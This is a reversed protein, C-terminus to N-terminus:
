YYHPENPTKLIGDKNLRGSPRKRIAREIRSDLEIDYSSKRCCRPCHEIHEGFTKIIRERDDHTLYAMKPFNKAFEEDNLEFAASLYNVDYTEIWQGVVPDICQLENLEEAQAELRADLDPEEHRIQDVISDSFDIEM